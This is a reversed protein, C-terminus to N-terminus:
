SPGIDFDDIMQRNDYTQISHKNKLVDHEYPPYASPARGDPQTNLIPPGCAIRTTFRLRMLQLPKCARLQPHPFLPVRSTVARFCRALSRCPFCIETDTRSLASATRITTLQKSRPLRSQQPSRTSLTSVTKGSLETSEAHNQTLAFVQLHSLASSNRDTYASLLTCTSQPCAGPMADAAADFLPLTFLDIFGIQGKAQIAADASAVVSVPLQLEQELSAQNAWEALLVTSWHESVEIPRTQAYM